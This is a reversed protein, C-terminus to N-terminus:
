VDDPELHCADRVQGVVGAPIPRNLGLADLRQRGTDADVIAGGGAEVVDERDVQAADPNAAGAEAVLVPDLSVALEHGGGLREM